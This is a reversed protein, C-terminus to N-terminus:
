MRPDNTRLTIRILVELADVVVDVPPGGTNQRRLSVPYTVPFNVDLVTHLHLYMCM